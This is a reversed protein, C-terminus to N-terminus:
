FYRKIKMAKVLSHGEYFFLNESHDVTVIKINSSSITTKEQPEKSEEEPNRIEISVDKDQIPLESKDGKQKNVYFALAV